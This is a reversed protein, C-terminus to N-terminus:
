NVKFLTSSDTHAFPKGYINLSSTQSYTLKDGEIAMNMIFDTTTANDSLYNSESIGRKSSRFTITNGADGEATVCAARPVCFSNYVKNKQADYILYGRQDHFKTDNEVRFVEQKYYISTLYQDSANKADAAVEFTMVEYFPTVAATGKGQPSGKQAPSIDVGHKSKWEGILQALPGLELGEVMTNSAFASSSLAVCACCILIKNM